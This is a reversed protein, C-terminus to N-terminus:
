RGPDTGAAPAPDDEDEEKAEIEAPPDAVLRGGAVDVVPVAAMTFPLMLTRGGDPPAIELIEGAGFDLVASVTGLIDGAVTEVRLGVLDAQYYEDADDLAPLRDRPVHLKQGTLRAAADRDGVGDIRVVLMDDKVLRAQAIRWTRGGAADALPGYGAIAMPDATFSKLRLEGRVGHPAGFIGVLILDSPM